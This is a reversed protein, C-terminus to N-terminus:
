RVGSPLWSFRTMSSMTRTLIPIMRRRVNTATPNLRSNRIVWVRPPEPSELMELTTAWNIAAPYLFVQSAAGGDVHLEDYRQGNAEVEFTVAHM